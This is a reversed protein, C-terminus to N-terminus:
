GKAEFSFYMFPQKEVGYEVTEGFKAGLFKLWAISSTNCTDVFNYLLGYHNLMINVFSKCNRLFRMKINEIDNSGLFWVIGKDGLLTEPTVGFMGVVRDNNEITFSLTSKELSVRLAQEPTHNHSKWVEQVDSDRLKDKLYEVDAEVSSRVTVGDLQYYMM